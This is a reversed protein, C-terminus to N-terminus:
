RYFHVALKRKYCDNIFFIGVSFDRDDSNEAPFVFTKTFYERKDKKENYSDVEGINDVSFTGAVDNNM